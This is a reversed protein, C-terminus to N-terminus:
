GHRELMERLLILSKLIPFDCYLKTRVWSKLSNIDDSKACSPGRRDVHTNDATIATRPPPLAALAPSLPLTIREERMKRMEAAVNSSVADLSIRGDHTDSLNGLQLAPIFILRM